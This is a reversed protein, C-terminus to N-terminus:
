RTVDIKCEDPWRQPMQSCGQGWLSFCEAGGSVIDFRDNMSIDHGTISCVALVHWIISRSSSVDVIFVMVVISMCVTESSSM